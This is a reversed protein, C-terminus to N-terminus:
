NSPNRKQKQYVWWSALWGALVVACGATLVFNIMFLEIIPWALSSLPVATHITAWLFDLRLGSLSSGALVDAVPNLPGGLRSLLLLGAIIMMAQTFAWASIVGLPAAQWGTKFVKRWTEPRSQRSAYAAMQLNLQQVSQRPTTLAAPAPAEQLLASLKRLEELRAQCEACSSLHEEVQELCAGHLEGDFYAPIWDVVHRDM